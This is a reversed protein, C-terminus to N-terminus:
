VLVGVKCCHSENRTLVVKTTTRVTACRSPVGWIRSGIEMLLAPLPHPYDQRRERGWGRTPCKHGLRGCGLDSFLWPIWFLGALGYRYSIERKRGLGICKFVWLGFWVLFVFSKLSEQGCMMLCFLVYVEREERFSCRYSLEESRRDRKDAGRAIQCYLATARSAGGRRQADGVMSIRGLRECWALPEDSRVCERRGSYKM